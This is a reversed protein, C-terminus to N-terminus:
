NGNEAGERFLLTWEVVDSKKDLNWQGQLVKPRCGSGAALTVAQMGTSDDGVLEMTWWEGDVWPSEYCSLIEIGEAELLDALREMM